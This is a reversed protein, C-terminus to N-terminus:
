IINAICIYLLVVDAQYEHKIADQLTAAPRNPLTTPGLKAWGQQLKKHSQM